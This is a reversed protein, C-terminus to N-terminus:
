ITTISKIKLKLNILKFLDYFELLESNPPICSQNIRM